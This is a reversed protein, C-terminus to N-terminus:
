QSIKQSRDKKNAYITLFLTTGRNPGRILLLLLKDILYKEM